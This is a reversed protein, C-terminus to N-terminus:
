AGRLETWEAHTCANGPHHTCTNCRNAGATYGFGNCAPCPPPYHPPRWAPNGEISTTAHRILDHKGADIIGRPNRRCKWCEASRKLKPEGCMCTDYNYSREDDRAARKCADCRCGDRYTSRLGHTRNEPNFSRNRPRTM